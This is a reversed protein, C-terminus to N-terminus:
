PGRYYIGMLPIAPDYPFLIKLKKSSYDEKKGFLTSWEANELCHILTERSQQLVHQEQEKHYMSTEITHSSMEINNQNIYRQHYHCPDNKEHRKVIQVEQFFTRKM